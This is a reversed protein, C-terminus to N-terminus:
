WNKANGWGGPVSRQVLQPIRFAAWDTCNRYGYGRSSNQTNGVIQGRSNRTYYGWQYDTCWYGEGQTAGNNNAVCPADWDPYGGTDAAASPPDLAVTEGAMLGLTMGVALATSSALRGLLHNSKHFQHSEDGSLIPTEPVFSLTAQVLVEHQSAM